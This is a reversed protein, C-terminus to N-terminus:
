GITEARKLFIHTNMVCCIDFSAPIGCDGCGVTLRKVGNSQPAILYLHVLSKKSIILIYIPINSYFSKKKKLFLYVIDNPFM